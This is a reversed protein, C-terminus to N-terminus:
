VFMEKQIKSTRRKSIEHYGLDIGLPERCLQQAVKLTTGSGCFPDLVADILLEGDIERPPRTSCRIMREVLREPWMAFHKESSKQTHIDWLDGPNKGNLEGNLLKRHWEKQKINTIYAGFRDGMEDSKESNCAAKGRTYSSEAFPVRVSDLDFYYKEQKTFMFIYEYKKSFRDTVSEPMANTKHWIISNRLIWGDEVLGIAVRHPILLQCKPMSQRLKASPSYDPYAGTDIASQRKASQEVAKGGGSPYSDAINLFFVGDKRLVRWAEKAWLRTHEVYMQPTPELGYQGRWANCHICFGTKHSSQKQMEFNHPRQCDGGQVHNM